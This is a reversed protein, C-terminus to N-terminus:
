SPVASLLAHRFLPKYVLRGGERTSHMLTIGRVQQTVGGTRVTSIAERIQGKDVERALTIHPNFGRNERGFGQKDLAKEMEQYLKQLEPAPQVGVWAVSRGGKPFQGLGKLGLTFEASREAAETIATKLAPLGLEEIEGIFRLTLHLNERHSFNGRDCYNRLESQLHVLFEKVKDEFEIAIFVRM